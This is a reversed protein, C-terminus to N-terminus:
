SFINKIELILWLKPAFINMILYQAMNFTVLIAVGLILFIPLIFMNMEDDKIKKAYNHIMRVSILCAIIFAVGIAVSLIGSIRGYLIYQQAIDPLQTKAFDGTAQIGTSIQKLIEASQSKILDDMQSM